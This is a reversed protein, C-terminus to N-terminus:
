KCNQTYLETVNLVNMNNPFRDVDNMERFNEDDGTSVRHGIREEKLGRTVM